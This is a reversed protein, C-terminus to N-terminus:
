KAPPHIRQAIQQRVSPDNRAVELIQSYEEVSIGQDTVAKTMANTAEGVIRQQDNPPATEIRQQYSQKISAVHPIAAAVANLKDDPINPHASQGQDNNQTRTQQMQDQANVAPLTVLWAAGLIASAVLLATPRM